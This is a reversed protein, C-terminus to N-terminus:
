GLEMNSTLRSSQAEEPKAPLLWAGQEGPEVAPMAANLARFRPRSGSLILRELLRNKLPQPRDNASHSKLEMVVECEKSGWGVAELFSASQNWHNFRQLAHESGM